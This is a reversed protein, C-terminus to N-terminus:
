YPSVNGYIFIVERHETNLHFLNSYDDRKPKESRPFPEPYEGIKAHFLWITFVLNIGIGILNFVFENTDM